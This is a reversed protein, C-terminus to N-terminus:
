KMFNTLQVISFVIIIGLSLTILIVKSINTGGLEKCKSLVYEDRNANYIEEIKKIQGYSRNLYMKNFKMGIVIHITILVAIIIGLVIFNNLFFTILILGFLYLSVGYLYMKRYMLYLSGLLLAYVNFKEYVFLKYNDGIYNKILEFDFQNQEDYNKKQKLNEKIINEDLHELYENDNKIKEIDIENETNNNINNSSYLGTSLLDDKNFTKDGFPAYLDENINSIETYNNNEINTSTEDESTMTDAQEETKENVQQNKKKKKKKKKKPMQEIEVPQEVTEEEINIDSNIQQENLLEENNKKKKKGM